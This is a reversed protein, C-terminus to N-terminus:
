TAGERWAHDHPEARGRSRYYKRAAVYAGIVIGYVCFDVYGAMAILIVFGIQDITPLRIRKGAAHMWVALGAGYLMFFVVHGAAIYNGWKWGLWAGHRLAIPMSTPPDAACVAPTAFASPASYPNVQDM